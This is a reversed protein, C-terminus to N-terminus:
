VTLTVGIINHIYYILICRESSSWREHRQPDATIGSQGGVHEGFTYMYQATDPNVGLLGIPVIRHWATTTPM